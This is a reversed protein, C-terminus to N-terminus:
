HVIGGGNGDDNDDDNDIIDNNDKKDINNFSNIKSNIDHKLLNEFLNNARSDNNDNDDGIMSYFTDLKLQFENNEKKLLRSYDKEKEWLQQLSISQQHVLYIEFAVDFSIITSEEFRFPPVIGTKIYLQQNENIYRKLLEFFNKILM